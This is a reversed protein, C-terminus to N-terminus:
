WSKKWPKGSETKYEEALGEQLLQIAKKVKSNRIFPALLNIANKILPSNLVNEAFGAEICVMVTNIRNRSHQHGMQKKANTLCAIISNMKDEHM